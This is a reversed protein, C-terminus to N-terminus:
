TVARVEGGPVCLDGDRVPRQLVRGADGAQPVAGAFLARLGGHAGAAADASARGPRRDGPRRPPERRRRRRAGAARREGRLARRTERRAVVLPLERSIPTAKIPTIDFGVRVHHINRWGVQDALGYKDHATPYLQDFTGRIGDAPNADGSAITTNATLKRRGPARCRSASRGTDPGPACRTPASPAASSAM